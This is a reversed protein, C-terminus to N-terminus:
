RRYVEKGEFITRKVVTGGIEDPPVEFLNRDLVIMNARKGVVISGMEGQQDNAIAGNVTMTRLASVLDLSEDGIELLGQLGPFPNPQPAVPWDSGTTVLVGRNMLSRFPWMFRPPDGLMPMLHWFAPSVEAVADLERMRQMDPPIVGGTHALDHRLRSSPNAVKSAAIADLAVHAAGPGGTHMKVKLGMADFKAVQENLAEPDVLINDLDPALTEMNIDSHTFNPPTPVGDLIIKVNDVDLHESRYRDRNAILVASQEETLGFIPSRWPIHATIQMSLEGSDDLKKLVKLDEPSTGAEQISVVGLSNLVEIGRKLAVLREEDSFKSTFPAVVARAEEILEGTLEGSADRKYEGGPPPESERTLGALELGRTNVLAAHFTREMVVVPRDPFIKDLYKRHPIGDPFQDHIYLGVELWEREIQDGCSKLSEYFSDNIPGPPMQCWFQARAGGLLLHVHADHIGPMVMQGELDVVRTEDVVFQEVSENDGVHVFRGDDVAVAQAWPLTESLTFIKGNVYVSEAGDAQAWPLVAAMALSSILSIFRVKM